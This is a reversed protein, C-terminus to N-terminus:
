LIENIMFDFVVPSIVPGQPTGNEIFASESYDGGFRVHISRNNLCDKIWDFMRGNIAASRLKDLAEM